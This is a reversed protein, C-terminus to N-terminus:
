IYEFRVYDWKFRGPILSKIQISHGSYKKFDVSGIKIRVWPDNATGGRTLDVLGGVKIGDVSVEIVANNYIKQPNNADFFECDAGIFLDYKGQVVKPINYTITFDGDMLFYDQSWLSGPADTSKVYSLTAGSWIVNKLLNHNEYLYTVSTPDNRFQNLDVEDYFEFNVIARSPIQPKLIQNVFHIAGSQTNVNSEDYFLGVFVTTDKTTPNVFKEKYKNIAIDLGLGNINIPVDAFTNYNTAVGELDDLFKNETLIHYKVFTNLPNTINTYDTRGPSIATALDQFSNINRMKYVADPEVFMAFPDLTQDKMKMDVDLIPKMGTADLAASFISYGPNKKLWTYSNMTIPKLMSGLVQIYGNSTEINAKIIQAQNNIKYYTTDKGLIFNVNLYDESLTPQVFTGFPFEDSSIGKTLVHYRALAKVYPVDKLLDAMSAFQTNGKFFDDVAKNDPIFLTYTTGDKSNPNYASLTKDLGGTQLIQLFSSYNEKNEVLYDYITYPIMDKFGAQLNETKKCSYQMSLVVFLSFIITIRKM